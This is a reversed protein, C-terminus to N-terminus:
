VHKCIEILKYVISHVCTGTDALKIPGHPYSRITQAFVGGQAHAPSTGLLLLLTLVIKNRMGAAEATGADGAANM